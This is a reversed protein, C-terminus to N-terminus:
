PTVHAFQMSSKTSISVVNGTRAFSYNVGPLGPLGFTVGDGDMLVMRIRQAQDPTATEVYTATVELASDLDMYYVVMDVGNEHLTGAQIPATLKIEDAQALSATFLTAAAAISIATAKM